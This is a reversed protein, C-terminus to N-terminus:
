KNKNFKNMFHIILFGIGLVAFLLSMVYYGTAYNSNIIYNYADGGVYANVSHGQYNSYHSFKDYGDAYFAMAKFFSLISLISWVSLMDLAKKLVKDTREASDSPKDATTEAIPPIPASADLSSQEPQVKNEVTQETGEETNNKEGDAM